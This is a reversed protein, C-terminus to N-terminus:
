EECAGLNANRGAEGNVPPGGRGPRGCKKRSSRDHDTDCFTNGGRQKEECKTQHCGAAKRRLRRFHSPWSRIRQRGDPVFHARSVPHMARVPRPIIITGVKTGSCPSIEGEGILPRSPPSSFCPLGITSCSAEEPSTM